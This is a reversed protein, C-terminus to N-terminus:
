VPSRDAAVLRVRVYRNGRAAVAAARDCFAALEAELEPTPLERWEGDDNWRLDRLWNFRAVDEATADPGLDTVPRAFVVTLRDGGDAPVYVNDDTPWM